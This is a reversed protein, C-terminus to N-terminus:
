QMLQLLRIAAARDPAGLKRTLSSIHRRVTVPSLGLRRAIELTDAGARLLEAIDWERVTLEVSREPLDLHRRPRGRVQEVLASVMARPIAPEGLHAARLAKALEPIGIDKTLYGAAGHALAALLDSERATEGVAVVATTPVRRAITAAASLGEGRPEVDILCVDPRDHVAVAVASEADSVDARVVFGEPQLGARVRSRFEADGGAILVSITTDAIPQAAM